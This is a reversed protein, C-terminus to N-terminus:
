TGCDGGRVVGDVVWAGGTWGRVEGPSSITRQGSGGTVCACSRALDRVCDGAGVARM